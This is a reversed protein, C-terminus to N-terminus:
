KTLEEIAKTSVVRRRGLRIARVQGLDIALKLRKASIHLQRAAAPISLFLGTDTQNSAMGSLCFWIRRTGTKKEPTM